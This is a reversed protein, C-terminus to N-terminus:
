QPYHIIQLPWSASGEYLTLFTTFKITHSLGDAPDIYTVNTNAPTGDGKMGTIVLAHITGTPPDADVTISLPGYKELLDYWAPIGPNLGKIVTLAAAQYLNEEESASIGRTASDAFTTKYPEGYLNIVDQISISLQNKWSYLMTLATAWCAWKKPQKIPQVIHSIELPM